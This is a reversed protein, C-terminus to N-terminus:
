LWSAYRLQILAMLLSACLFVSSSDLRFSLRLLLLGAERYVRLDVLETAGILVDRGSLGSSGRCVDGTLLSLVAAELGTAPAAAVLPWEAPCRCPFDATPINMVEVGIAVAAVDASCVDLATPSM